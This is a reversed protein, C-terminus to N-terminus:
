IASKIERYAFCDTVHDNVMGIAQMFAYCITSGVFKFGRGKLDKSMTDSEVSTAPIEEVKKWSNHITKHGTFQWIYKDFSGFEKQLQLFMQANSIAARIKLKNRVIGKDNCLELIKKEGYAAIKHADFNDFATRFNERKQLVIIWSLGAQFTDLIIAEFIQQDDHLPRGWERDHYDIYIEKSTSWECRNM